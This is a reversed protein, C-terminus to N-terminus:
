AALKFLHIGVEFCITVVSIGIFFITNAAVTAKAM